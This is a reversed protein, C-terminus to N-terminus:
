VKCTRWIVDTVCIINKILKNNTHSVNDLHAKARKAKHMNKYKGGIDTEDVELMNNLKEEGTPKLMECCPTIYAM